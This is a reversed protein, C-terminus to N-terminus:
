PARDSESSLHRRGVAALADDATLDCRLAVASGLEARRRSRESRVSAYAAAARAHGAAILVRGVADAVVATQVAATDGRARLGVIVAAALETALWDDAAEAAILALRISRALKTARLWERRGDRKEVLFDM